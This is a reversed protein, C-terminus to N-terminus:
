VINIYFWSITDHTIVACFVCLVSQNVPFPCTTGALRFQHFTHQLLNWDTGMEWRWSHQPKGPLATMQSSGAMQANTAKIANMILDMMINMQNDLVHMQKPVLQRFIKAVQVAVPM